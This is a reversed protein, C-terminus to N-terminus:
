ASRALEEQITVLAGIADRKMGADVSHASFKAEHYLSTLRELPVRGVSFAGLVRQLYELATEVTRRPLGADELAVELTAYAKIVALRPDPEREVDALTIALSKQVDDLQDDAELEGEHVRKPALTRLAFAGGIVLVIGGAIWWWTDLEFSVARGGSREAPPRPAAAPPAPRPPASSQPPTGILLAAVVGAIVAVVFVGIQQRGTGRDVRRNHWVLFAFLAGVIPFLVLAATKFSPNRGGIEGNANGFSWLAGSSVTGIGFALAGVLLVAQHLSLRFPSGLESRFTQQPAHSGVGPLCGV